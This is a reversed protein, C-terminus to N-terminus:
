PRMILLKRRVIEKGVQISVFYTGTALQDLNLEVTNAGSYLETDITRVARGMNDFINLRAIAEEPANIRVSVNTNAVPNPFLEGVNLENSVTQLTEHAQAFEEDQGVLTSVCTASLEYAGTATGFGTVYIFYTVGGTATFAVTSRLGSFSCPADDNGTICLLNSCTGSFVGLKTDFGTANCTTLTVVQSTASTFTHWKGPATTLATVCTGLGTNTTGGVTTGSVTGGCALATAATCAAGGNAGSCSTCQVATTRCGSAQIACAGNLTIHLFLPGSATATVTLPTTGCGLAAGGSTGQRVTLFDTAVSSTFTYTNGAVANNITAFESPYNCTSITVPSNTAPATAMGFSTTNTCNCPPAACTVAMTFSGTNSGFGTVLINYTTGATSSFTTQSQLGCFDDNGGVCVLAGCTGTFVGVKTDYGSGCLSVTIMGGNGVVRYWVGGATNLTTGCTAVADITSGVTSGTTTSGCAVLNSNACADNPPGAVGCTVSLSFAGSASVTGAVLVRYVTGFVSNFTVTSKRGAPYAGGQSCAGDNNNGAVCTLAACAGTYVSIQTDFLTATSCTSLTITGGTGTITYWVGKGQPAIGTCLPAVDNTATATNGTVTQGCSLAIAGACADNAPQAYAFNLSFVALAALVLAKGSNLVKM